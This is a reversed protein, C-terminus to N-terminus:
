RQKVAEIKITHTVPTMTKVATEYLGRDVDALLQILKDMSAGREGLAERYREQYHVIHKISPTEFIQQQQIAYHVKRFPEVFPNDMFEAALNIGKSLQDASFEGSQGGWTIKLNGQAGKIVLMFRNLEDNFPIFRIVGRMSNPSMPDDPERDKLFCFPYKSSEITVTDNQFSRVAHGETATAKNARLDVTITGINGDFGMAKLFAYAMVLHGNGSPHFGDYALAYDRGFAAKAKTMVDFMAQYVDAFPCHHKEAIERAIDREAALTLNYIEPTTRWNFKVTDVCGPSGVVVRIKRDLFTRVIKELNERYKALKEPTGPGYDGDNMGYCLTVITPKYRLVDNDMRPLFGWSTEGSWGFQIAWVNPVPKCMVLYDEIFVPYLKQETISDGIIGLLDNPKVIPEAARASLCCILVLLCRFWTKMFDEPFIHPLRKM